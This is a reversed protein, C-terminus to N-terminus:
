SEVEQEGQATTESEVEQEGQATTESEVEQEGQATTESEVEQEGQATTESEVEQEGQATTESEALGAQSALSQHQSEAAAKALQHNTIDMTEKGGLIGPQTGTEGLASLIGWEPEHGASAMENLRRTIRKQWIKWSRELKGRTGEFLQHLHPQQAPLGNELISGIGHSMIVGKEM